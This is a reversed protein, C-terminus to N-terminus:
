TVVGLSAILSQLKKEVIEASDHSDFVVAAHDPAHM